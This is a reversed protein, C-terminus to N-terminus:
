GGSIVGAAVNILLSLLAMNFLFSTVGHVTATRRLGKSSIQVDSVQSTMGIVFSFYTFDWYDPDEGGPFELGASEDYYEHAYHLAFSVHILTWSLLITILAAAVRLSRQAPDGQAGAMEIVIAILSVAAAGITLLLIGVRGEDEDAARARIQAVTAGHMVAFALLLYLAVAVDWGVLFRAWPDTSYPALALGVCVAAALFFRWRSHVVRLAYPRRRAARRSTAAM